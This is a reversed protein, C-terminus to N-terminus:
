SSPLPEYGFDVNFGGDPKLVFRITTWEPAGPEAVSRTVEKLRDLLDLLRFVDQVRVGRWKGHGEFAEAEFRGWDPGIKADLVVKRRPTGAASAALISGIEPYPDKPLDM